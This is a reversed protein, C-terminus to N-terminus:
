IQKVKNKDKISKYFSWNKLKSSIKENSFDEMCAGSICSRLHKCRKQFFYGYPCRGQFVLHQSGLPSYLHGNSSGFFSVTPISSLGALHLPLSDMSIILDMKEMLHFLSILSYGSLVISRDPFRLALTQAEIKETDDGSVFLFTADLDKSLFSLLDCLRKVPIQKNKWRSFPCVLINVKNQVLSHSLLKEIKKSPKVSLFLDPEQKYKANLSFFGNILQCYQLRLNVTPNISIHRNTAILNPWEAVNNSDFGIKNKAKALATIVGSKINGQLDFIADYRNLRLDKIFNAIAKRCRSRWPYKKWKKEELFIVRNIHPHSLLLDKASHEAVWDIEADPEIKKLLSLAPFSQVIDGLSSTKVILYRKM